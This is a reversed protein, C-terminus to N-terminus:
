SFICYLDYVVCRLSFVDEFWKIARANKTLQGIDVSRLVNVPDSESVGPLGGAGLGVGSEGSTELGGEKRVQVPAPGRIAKLAYVLVDDGGVLNITITRLISQLRARFAQYIRKCTCILNLLDDFSSLFSLIHDILDTPLPFARLTAVSSVTPTTM